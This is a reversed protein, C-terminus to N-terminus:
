FPVDGIVCFRRLLRREAPDFDTRGHVLCRNDWIAVDGRQWDHEYIFREQELHDFLGALLADSEEPDMDIVYDTMLRNIYLSKRGTDPHTRAIPHAHRPADVDRESTKKHMNRDNYDYVNMGILGELRAKM